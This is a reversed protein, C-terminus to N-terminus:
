LMDGLPRAPRSRSPDWVPSFPPAYSLDPSILGRRDHRPSLPPWSTSASPRARRVWSRPASCAAPAGSPSCSSWSRSPARSTAPAPRRRSRHGVVYEFGADAAETETSGPAPSRPARLDQHGRHRGRRPLHRLRRRHQHGGVRAQPQGRHRPRHAGAAPVRPPLSEAATAPRGCVTSAPRSAATSGSAGKAGSSSAPTPRWSPTRRRRRPRARRPRGPRDGSEPTVAGPEFGDVPVGCRVDIGTRVMATRSWRRGHRPRANGMMETPPRSSRSRRAGALFAEAMELGIYGGGVVVVDEASPGSADAGAPAAADDLTQVGLVSTATSAPCTPGCAPPRRHRHDAPRLRAPVHPRARPRPGRGPPRRPRHGDGRPATRVDITSRRPVGPAHPRRPRRPPRRRRRRPLPHRLGLLQDLDGQELAVIDLDANPAPRQTAAAM